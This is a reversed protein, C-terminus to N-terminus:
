MYLLVEIIRVCLNWHCTPYQIRWLAKIWGSLQYVACLFHNTNYMDILLARPCIREHYCSNMACANLSVGMELYIWRRSYERM